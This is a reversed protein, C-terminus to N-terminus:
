SLLTLTSSFFLSYDQNVLATARDAAYAHAQIPKNVHCISKAAFEVQCIIKHSRLTDQHCYSNITSYMNRPNKIDRYDNTIMSRMIMARPSDVPNQATYTHVPKARTTSDVAFRSM